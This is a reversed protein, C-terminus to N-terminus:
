TIANGGDRQARVVYTGYYPETVNYITVTLVSNNIVEEFTDVQLSDPLTWDPLRETNNFGAFTSIYLIPAGKTQTTLLNEAKLM